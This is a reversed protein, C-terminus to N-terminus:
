VLSFSFQIWGLRLNSCPRWRDVGNDLHVASGGVAPRGILGKNRGDAAAMKFKKGSRDPLPPHPLGPEAAQRKPLPKRCGHHPLWAQQQPIPGAGHDAM